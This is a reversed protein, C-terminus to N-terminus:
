VITMQKSQEYTGFRNSVQMRYIYDGASLGLGTLNLKITQAGANRSKRVVGAMKRGLQDFLDLRIDATALLTFPVTTEGHHPNPYNQGLLFYGGAVRSGGPITTLGHPEPVVDPTVACGSAPVAEVEPFTVYGPAVTM